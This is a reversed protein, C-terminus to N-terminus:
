NLEDVIEIWGHKYAKVATSKTSATINEIGVLVEKSGWYYVKGDETLANLIQGDEPTVNSTIQIIKKM